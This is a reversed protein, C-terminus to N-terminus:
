QSFPGDPPRDITERLGMLGAPHAVVRLHIDREQVAIQEKAVQIEYGPLRSVRSQGPMHIGDLHFPEGNSARKHAPTEVRLPQDEYAM